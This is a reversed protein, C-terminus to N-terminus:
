PLPVTLQLYAVSPMAKGFASLKPVYLLNLGASTKPITISATPLVAPVLGMKGSWSMSRYFVYAGAGLSVEATKSFRWERMAALGAYGGWFNRSDQMIGMTQRRSWGDGDTARRELGLGPHSENWERGPASTQEMHRSVGGTHLYWQEMAMVPSTTMSLLAAGAFAIARCMKRVRPLRNSFM